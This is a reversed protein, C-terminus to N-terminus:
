DIAAAHSEAALRAGKEGFLKELRYYRDDLSTVLHASTRGTEGSGIYGDEILIVKKGSKALCYAITVGAIGGGIVLVDTEKNEHLPTFSIAKGISDTWYSFHAGSTIKENQPYM